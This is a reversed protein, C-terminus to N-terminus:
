SAPPQTGIVPGTSAHPTAGPAAGTRPPPPIPGFVSPWALNNAQWYKWYVPGAGFTAQDIPLKYGAVTDHRMQMSTIRRSKAMELTFEKSWPLFTITNPTYHKSTAYEHVLRWWPKQGKFPSMNSRQCVLIKVQEHLPLAAIEKCDGGHHAITDCRPCGSQEGDKGGPRSFCTALTHRKNGCAACKIPKKKETVGHRLIGAPKGQDNYGSNDEWTMEVAKAAIQDFRGPTNPILFFQCSTAGTRKMVDDIVDDVGGGCTVGWVKGADRNSFWHNTEGGELSNSTLRSAVAGGLDAVQAHSSKPVCDLPRYDPVRARHEGHRGGRYGGRGGRHSRGGRPGAWGGHFSAGGRGRNKTSNKGHQSSLEGNEQRTAQATAESNIQQPRADDSPTAHGHGPRPRSSGGQGSGQGSNNSQQIAM